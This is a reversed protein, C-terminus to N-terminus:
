LGAAVGGRGSAMPAARQEASGGLLGKVQSAQVWQAMGPKWVLDTSALQGGAALQKLQVANVPGFQQGDRAYFWEDAMATRWRGRRRRVAGRGASAAVIKDLRWAARWCRTATAPQGARIAPPAM